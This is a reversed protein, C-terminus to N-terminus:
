SDWRRWGPAPQVARQLYPLEDRVATGLLQRDQESLTQVGQADKPVPADISWTGVMQAVLGDLNADDLSGGDLELLARQLRRRERVTFTLPDRLVAWQGDSLEVRQGALLVDRISVVGRVGGEDVVVLHRIGHESMAAAAEYVEWDPGATVVEETAYEAVTATDIDVDTGAARLIDRETLIGQLPGGDDRVIVSGVGGDHMTRAAERLTQGPAAAILDRGVLSGVTIGLGSQQAEGVPRAQEGGADADHETM